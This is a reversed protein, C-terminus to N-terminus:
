PQLKQAPIAADAGRLERMQTRGLSLAEERNQTTRVLLAKELQKAALEVQLSKLRAELEVEGANLGVRKLRGAVETSEDSEREAREKEWRQTGMLVEGGATYTDTLTVGSDSLILERLQNSHATGRSKIISLGRSREGAQLLYNLHIWTDALGSIQVTSGGEMQGSMEDLLRTRILTIGEAASWNILREAVSHATLDNGAKSWTSVPDVVMCRAAHERALTNIRVLYTEASGTVTSASIMRLLGRKVYRDLQIGVSALNRIVEAGDSDFSVFVTREGRRCAAEAFTGSLTTKATGSFGTILVSAGRYYGGGLMTDLREVGSSVRETTVKPNVAGQVAPARAVALELESKGLLYPSENEDFSAGRYKQVRLNRQSVGRVVSHNLVVACDVMFQMFAVPPQNVSGALDWGSKVTILGTLERTQLWDHICYIERQRSGQDPLLALVIDLADFVVRKGLIARTQADLAALLGALDFEGSQILDPSPQADIFALKKSSLKSLNWDFGETNAVIRKSNEEFAVFIGSERCASAGHVLFQLAFITKGLGPGGTILTTRGRPLGGVTIEDFGAIGTPVKAPASTPAKARGVRTSKMPKKIASLAAISSQNARCCRCGNAVLITCWDALDTHADDCM